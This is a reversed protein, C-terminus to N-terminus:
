NPPTLVLPTWRLTGQRSPHVAQALAAWVLPACNEELRLACHEIVSLKAELTLGAFESKSIPRPPKRM